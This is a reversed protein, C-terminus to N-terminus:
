NEETDDRRRQKPSLLGYGTAIVGLKHPDTAIGPRGNSLTDGYLDHGVTVDFPPGSNATLLPNFRIGWKATVTGSLTFRNHVDTAAPGYEGEMSYPKAPFTGLGDTNSMGRNYM